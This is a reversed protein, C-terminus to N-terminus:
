PAEKITGLLAGEDMGKGSFSFAARSSRSYSVILNYLFSDIIAIVKFAM